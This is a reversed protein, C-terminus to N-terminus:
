CGVFVFVFYQIDDNLIRLWHDFYYFSRIQNAINAGGMGFNYADNVNLHLFKMKVIQNREKDFVDRSKEELFIRKTTM